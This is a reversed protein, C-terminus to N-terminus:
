KTLTLAIALVAVLILLWKIKKVRISEAYDAAADHLSNYLKTM